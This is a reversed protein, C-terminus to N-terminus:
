ERSRRARLLRFVRDSEFGQGVFHRYLRGFEREDVIAPRGALRRDLASALLADADVQEFAEVLARDAIEPAIGAAALRQRVRYPGRHRVAAESRAIAGATRADDIVGSALLESVVSEISEADHGLRALRERVQAESLERRALM